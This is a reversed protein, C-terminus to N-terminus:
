LYPSSDVAATLLSYRVVKVEGFRLHCSVVAVEAIFNVGYSLDLPNTMM